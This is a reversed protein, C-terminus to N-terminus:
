RGARQSGSGGGQRMRRRAQADKAEKVGKAMAERGGRLLLIAKSAALTM